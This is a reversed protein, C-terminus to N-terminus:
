LSNINQNFSIYDNTSAEWDSDDDDEELVFWETIGGRREVDSLTVVVRGMLSGRAFIGKRDVVSVELKQQQM